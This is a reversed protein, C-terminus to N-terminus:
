AINCIYLKSLRSLNFQYNKVIQSLQQNKNILEKMEDELQDIRM